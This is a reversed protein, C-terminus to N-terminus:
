IRRESDCLPLMEQEAFNLDCRYIRRKEVVLLSICFALGLKRGRKAGFADPSEKSHVSTTFHTTRKQWGRTAGM